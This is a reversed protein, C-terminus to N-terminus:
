ARRMPAPKSSASRRVRCLFVDPITGDRDPNGSGGGQQKTSCFVSGARGLLSVKVHVASAAVSNGGAPTGSGGAGRSVNM